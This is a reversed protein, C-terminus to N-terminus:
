LLVMHPCCLEQLAASYNHPIILMSITKCGSAMGENGVQSFPYIFKQKVFTNKHSKNCQM